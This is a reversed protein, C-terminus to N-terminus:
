NSEIIRFLSDAIKNITDWKEYILYENPIEVNFVQEIAVLMKVFSFSDMGHTELDDDLIDQVIEFDALMEEKVLFQIVKEKLQKKNM